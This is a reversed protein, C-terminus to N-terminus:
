PTVRSDPQNLLTPGVARETPLKERIQLPELQPRRTRIRDLVLDPFYEPLNLIADLAPVVEPLDDIVDVLEPEARLRLLVLQRM